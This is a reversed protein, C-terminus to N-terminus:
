RPPTTPFRAPSSACAPAAAAPTPRSISRPSSRRRRPTASAARRDGRRLRRHSRSGRLRDQRRHRVPPPLRHAHRHLFEAVARRGSQLQRRRDASVSGAAGASRLRRRHQGTRAAAGVGPQHRDGAGHAQQGADPRGHRLESVGRASRAAGAARERVRDLRDPRAGRGVLVRAPRQPPAAARRASRRRRARRRQGVRQRRRRLSDQGSPEQRRALQRERRPRSSRLARRARGVAERRRRDARDGASLRRRQARHAERARRRHPRARDVNPMAFGAVHPNAADLSKQAAQWRRARIASRRSCRTPSRAASAPPSSAPDPSRRTSRCRFRKAPTRRAATRHRRAHAKAGRQRAAMAKYRLDSYRALIGKTKADADEPFYRLVLVVKDKVDLTAYSDYGFDQSRARRHRLRRLRGAGTVDGNDSFSLAQVDRARTSRAAIRTRARHRHYTTTSGGDRTGATFEFPLLFDTAGPLPKAGIRQLQASSTTAPSGSAPRARWGDRSASPPWRRRRARADEVDSAGPRRRSRRAAYRCRRRAIRRCRPSARTPRDDNRRSPKRPPANRIAELAKEHNWQALFLQGASGGARSSTWALQTGDPSPVPCATSATPTPSACRSRRARRRRGHVARLERLRAQEVRLHLVRGVSARVAGLEDIRLRHDTERGIGDLKMTWVDAILGQEDFRRWVIRSGDHTFFPGGDYGPVNTLRKQGSGDARMIYIEAFYSPNEELVKKEKDNLPRNYADRM